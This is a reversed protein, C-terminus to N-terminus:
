ESIRDVISGIVALAESARKAKESAGVGLGIESIAEAGSASQM